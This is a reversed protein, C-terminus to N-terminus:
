AQATCLRWLFQPRVKSALKHVVPQHQQIKSLAPGLLLLSLVSFFSRRRHFVTVLSAISVTLCFSHVLAQTRYRYAPLPGSNGNGAVADVLEECLFELM